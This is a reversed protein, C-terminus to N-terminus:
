VADVALARAGRRRAVSRARVRVAAACFGDTASLTLGGAQVEVLLADLRHLTSPNEAPVLAAVRELAQGLAGAMVECDVELAEKAMPALAARLRSRADHLRRKVTGAPVNLASAIEAVAYGDLYFLTAAARSAPPLAALAGRVATAAPNHAAPEALELGEIPLTAQRWRRRRSLAQRM